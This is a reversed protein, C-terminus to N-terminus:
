DDIKIVKLKKNFKVELGNSLDVDYGTRDREIQVIRADPYAGKVYDSIAAPVLAAPVAQPKTDIETWQGKSDFELKIGDALVVDYSVRLADNDKQVLLVRQSKFHKTMVNQAAVPLEKVTIVKDRGSCHTSQLVFLLAVILYSMTKM